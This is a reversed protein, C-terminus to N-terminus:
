WRPTKGFFRSKGPSRTGYKMSASPVRQAM